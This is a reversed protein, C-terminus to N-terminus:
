GAQQARALEAREASTLFLGQAKRYEAMAETNKGARALAEGWKLHLRGWNPAFRDAAKFKKVAGAADGKALLAEGWGELPDAWGPARRNAERFQVIAAAHDGRKLLVAGWRYPADALSPTMRSAWGLWHDATKADGRAAALKGRVTVCPACDLPTQDLLAQADDLRGLEILWGASVSKPQYYYAGKDIRKEWPKRAEQSAALAQEWDGAASAVRAVSQPLRESQQQNEPQISALVRRAANVDHLNALDTIVAFEPNYGDAFGLLAASQSIRHMALARTWDNQQAALGALSTELYQKRAESGLTDYAKRDRLQAVDQSFLRFARESHGLSQENGALNNLLAPAATADLDLAKEQLRRAEMLDTTLSQSALFAYARARVKRDPSATRAATWQRLDEFRGSRALYGSYSTPQERSYLDEALRQLIASLEGESGRQESLAVSGARAALVLSGDPASMLEGTVRRERGLKERLWQEVQSISIGTEPIQISVEDRSAAVQRQAEASRAIQAMVGIRDMVQAAIAEGTVGRQELAPPVSFPRIVLGNARSANWAMAGVVILLVFCVLATGIKLAVGIRESAIQWGRHRLDAKILREQGLLVRRAPSDPSADGAEAEMAIEIPDPTTPSPETAAKRKRQVAM